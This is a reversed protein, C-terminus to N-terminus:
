TVHLRLTESHRQGGEDTWTFVVDGTAVAITSFAMYPNAAVGQTLEARFIEEGAYTVSLTRIIDRAIIEGKDGRRYGTEMPHQILTKIDILEGKRATAPMVIRASKMIAMGTEM